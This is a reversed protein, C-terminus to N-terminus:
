KEYSNKVAIDLQGYAKIIADGISLKNSLSDSAPLAPLHCLYISYKVRRYM